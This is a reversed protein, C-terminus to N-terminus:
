KQMLVNGLTGPKLGSTDGTLHASAECTGTAPDIAPSVYTIEGTFAPANPPFNVPELRFTVKQGSTVNYPVPVSFVVSLDTTNVLSALPAGQNVFAGPALDFNALTGDFPARINTADLVAQDAELTARQAQVEAQAQEISAASAIPIVGARVQEQQVEAAKLKERAITVNAQDKAVMAAADHNDLKFLIDGKKVQQGPKALIETLTGSVPPRITATPAHIQAPFSLPPQSGSPASSSQIQAIPLSDPHAAAYAEGAVQMLSAQDRELTGEREKLEAQAAALDKQRSAADATNGAASAQKVKSTAEELKSRAADVGTWDAAIKKRLKEIAADSAEAHPATRADPTPVTTLKMPGLLDVSDARLTTTGSTLTVGGDFHASNADITASRPQLSAFAPAPQTAPVTPASQAVLRWPVLGLAALATLFTATTILRRRSSPTITKMALLRRRMHSASDAVGVSMPARRQHNQLTLVDLLTDAYDAPRARTLSLTLEDCALEQAFRVPRRALWLLPHFCFIATIAAHFHNWLIDRRKAHALEHALILSLREPAAASLLSEPLLIAPRRLGTLVPAFPSTTTLLAPPHPLRSNAALRAYLVRLKENTVPTATQRLRLSVRLARAFHILVSLVGISWLMLLWLAPSLPTAPVPPLSPALPKSARTQQPLDTDGPLATELTAINKAAIPTVPQRAAPLLALNLPALLVLAAAFKLYAARWIWSQARGSRRALTQALAWAIVLALGGQWSARLMAQAWPTAFGNLSTLTM